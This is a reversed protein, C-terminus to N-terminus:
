CFTKLWPIRGPTLVSPTATYVDIAVWVSANQNMHAAIEALRIEVQDFESV